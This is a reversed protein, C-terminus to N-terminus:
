VFEYNVAEGKIYFKMQNLVDLGSLKSYAKLKEVADKSNLNSTLIKKDLSVYNCYSYPKLNIDVILFTKNKIQIIAVYWKKWNQFNKFSFFSNVAMFPNTDILYDVFIGYLDYIIDKSELPELKM